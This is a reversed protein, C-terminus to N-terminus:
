VQRAGVGLFVLFFATTGAATLVATAAQRAGELTNGAALGAWAVVGAQVCLAYGAAAMGAAWVLVALRGVAAIKEDV